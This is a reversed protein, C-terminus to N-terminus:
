GMLSSSVPRFINGINGRLVTKIGCWSIGKCMKSFLYLRSM